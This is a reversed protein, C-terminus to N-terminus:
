VVSKRDVSQALAPFALLAAALATTVFVHTRM